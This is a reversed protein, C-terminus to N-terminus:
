RHMCERMFACDDSLVAIKEGASLPRDFTLDEVELTLSGSFGLDALQGLIEAILPDRSLPSHLRGNGIRSIHVNALRDHCLEIYRAPEEGDKALAHSIDLTFGLWPEEDLVARMREPTHILSNVTPEMNEMCVRPTHRSAAERLRDLYRAFREADAPSPPRKATRRGPHVTVLGAGAQEAIAVSRIAYEVSAAAVAPNISCPNLDLIPAHLTMSSIGPHSHRCAILEDVPQGRLWFDPTEPWFEVADLGARSVFDFIEPCSYEHFFMSAVSFAVM